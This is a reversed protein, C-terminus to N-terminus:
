ASFGAFEVDETTVTGATRGPAAQEQWYLNTHAIVKDPAPAGYSSLDETTHADSVLTTDYGRVLAGHLTSRICMDTQAGSVFLHGIGRESLVHELDTNEFADGYAKHVLPESDQRELEPVLQWQSSQRPLADSTHQVWIVPVAAMRAKAVTRAINAVVGSRDYADAMVGNQVDIVVLASNPRNELTTV